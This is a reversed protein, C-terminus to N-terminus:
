ARQKVSIEGFFTIENQGNFNLYKVRNHVFGAKKM